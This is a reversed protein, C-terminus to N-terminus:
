AARAVRRSKARQLDKLVLDVVQESADALIRQRLSERVRRRQLVPEVERVLFEPALAKIYQRADERTMQAARDCTAEGLAIHCERALEGATQRVLSNDLWIFLRDLVGETTSIPVQRRATTQKPKGNTKMAVIEM